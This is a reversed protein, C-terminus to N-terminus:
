EWTERMEIQLGDPSFILRSGEYRTSAIHAYMSAVSSKRLNTRNSSQNSTNKSRPARYPGLDRLSASVKVLFYTLITQLLNHHRRPRVSIGRYKGRDAARPGNYFRVNVDGSVETSFASGVRDTKYNSTQLSFFFLANPFSDFTQRIKQTNYKFM